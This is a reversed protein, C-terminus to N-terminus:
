RLRKKRLIAMEALQGKKAFIANFFSRINIVAKPLM